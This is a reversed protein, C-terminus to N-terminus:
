KEFRKADLWIILARHRFLRIDTIKGTVWVKDGDPASEGSSVKLKGLANAQSM